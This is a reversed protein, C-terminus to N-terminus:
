GGETTKSLRFLRITFMIIWAILMLGGPAAFATATEGVAPVFTVLVVYLTILANGIIGLYANTKSFVKGSLMACSMVFGAVGAIFFGYFAGLSGHAGRALLSEGAAALLMKQSESAAAYKGSLELMPLAANNTVFVATGVLFLILALMSYAKSTKRQAAYLAFYVPITILQAVTNLLDLNYLGLWPNKQLQAFRDAATQPLASLNGGTISGIIIDSIVMILSLNAAIGGLIYISKWQSHENNQKVESM